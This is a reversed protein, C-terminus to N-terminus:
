YLDAVLDRIARSLDAYGTPEYRAVLEDGTEEIHILHRGDDTDVWSLLRRTARGGHGSAVIRGVGMREGSLARGLQQEETLTSGRSRRPTETMRVIKLNGFAQTEAEEHDREAAKHASYASRYKAASHRITAGAGPAAGMRPLADAVTGLFDDDSLSTFYLEDEGHRQTIRLAEAGDTALLAAIDHQRADIGSVAVSVRHDALLEFARKLRPNPEGGSRGALLGREALRDGVRAALGRLRDRDITTNRIRLPFRRIDVGLAQGVVSAEVSGLVFDYKDSVTHQGGKRVSHRVRLAPGFALLARVAVCIGSPSDPLFTSM